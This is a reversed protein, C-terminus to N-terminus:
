GVAVGRTLGRGVWTRSTAVMPAQGIPFVRGDSNVVFGSSGGGYLVIGRATDANSRFFTRLRPAGGFPHVGGFADLV